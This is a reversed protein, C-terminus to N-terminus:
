PSSETPEYATRLTIQRQGETVVWNEQYIAGDDMLRYDIGTRLGDETRAEVLYVGPEPSSGRYRVPPGPGAFVWVEYEEEDPSWRQMVHAEWVGGGPPDGQFEVRMWAGGLVWRYSLEGPVITGDPYESLTQWEGMLFQIQEHEPSLALQASLNPTAMCLLIPLAVAAASRIPIM